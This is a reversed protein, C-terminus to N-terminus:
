PNAEKSVRYHFSDLRGINGINGNSGNSGNSGILCRASTASPRAEPTV